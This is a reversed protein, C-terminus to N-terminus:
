FRLSTRRECKRVMMAAQTADIHEQAQKFAQIVGMPDKWKDFRSIQVVLPLDTPIGAEDLKALPSSTGDGVKGAPTIRM